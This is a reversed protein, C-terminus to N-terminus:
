FTYQVAAYTFDVDKHAGTDQLYTGHWFHSYGLYSSLHRDIQWKLQLDLESGINRASTNTTNARIVAGSTDYVADTTSQRWFQHYEARLTMREVYRYHEAIQFDVGPHLDIINQRGIFDM